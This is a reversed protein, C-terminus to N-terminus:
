AASLLDSPEEEASAPETTLQFSLAPIGHPLVVTGIRGGMAKALVAALKLPLRRPCPEARFLDAAESASLSPLEILVSLREGGDFSPEGHLRMRVPGDEADASVAFALLASLCETFRSADMLLDRGQTASLSVRVGSGASRLAANAQKAAARALAYPDAPQNRPASTGASLEALDMVQTLVHRIQELAAGLEGATRQPIPIRADASKRITDEEASLVLLPERLGMVSELLLESAQVCPATEPPLKKRPVPFGRGAAAVVGAGLALSAAILVSMFLGKERL